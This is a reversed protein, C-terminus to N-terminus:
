LRDQIYEPEKHFIPIHNDIIWRSREVEGKYHPNDVKELTRVKVCCRGRKLNNDLKAWNRGKQHIMEHLEPIDKGHLEKQSYLSRALMQVSNREWDKQRNKMIFDIARKQYLEITDTPNRFDVTMRKWREIDECEAIIRSIEGKSDM